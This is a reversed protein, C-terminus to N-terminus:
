PAASGPEDRARPSHTAFVQGQTQGDSHAGRGADRTPDRFNEAYASAARTRTSQAFSVLEPGGARPPASVGTTGDLRLSPCTGGRQRHEQRRGLVENRVALARRRSASSNSAPRERPGAYGPASGEPRRAANRASSATGIRRYPDDARVDKRISIDAMHQICGVRRLCRSSTERVSRVTVREPDSGGDSRSGEEEGSRQDRRHAPRHSQSSWQTSRTKAIESDQCKKLHEQTARVNRHRHGRRGRATAHKVPTKEAGRHALARSACSRGREPISDLDSSRIGERHRSSRGTGPSSTHPRTRTTPSGVSKPTYSHRLLRAAEDLPRALEATAPRLERRVDALTSRRPTPSCDKIAM